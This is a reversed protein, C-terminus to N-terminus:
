KEEGMNNTHGSRDMWSLTQALIPSELLRQFGALCESHRGGGAQRFFCRMGQFIEAAFGCKM